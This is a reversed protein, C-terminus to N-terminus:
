SFNNTVWEYGQEDKYADKHALSKKNKYKIDIFEFLDNTEISMEKYLKNYSKIYDKLLKDLKDTYDEHLRRIRNKEFKKPTFYYNTGM